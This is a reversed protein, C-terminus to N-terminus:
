KGIEKVITVIGGCIRTKPRSASKTKDLSVKQDQCPTPGARLRMKQLTLLHCEDCKVILYKPAQKKRGTPTLIHRYQARCYEAVKTLSTLHQEYNM